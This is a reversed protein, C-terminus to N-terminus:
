SCNIILRSPVAASSIGHTIAIKEQHGCHDKRREISINRNTDIQSSKWSIFFNPAGPRTMLAPNSADAGKTHFKESLKPILNIKNAGKKMRAREKRDDELRRM